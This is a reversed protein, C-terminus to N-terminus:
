RTVQPLLVLYEPQPGYGSITISESLLPSIVGASNRARIELTHIGDYLM